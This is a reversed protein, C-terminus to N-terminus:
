ATERPFVAESMWRYCQVCGSRYGLLRGRFHQVRGDTPYERLTKKEVPWNRGLM